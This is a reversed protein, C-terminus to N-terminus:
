VVKAFQLFRSSSMPFRSGAESIYVSDAGTNDKILTNAGIFCREGISLGHAVCANVGFFSSQGVSVNGALSVGSNIWSYDGIACDHGLSSNSSIFCGRGLDTGPHLAVHDLVITNEGVSLTDHRRVTPDIYSAFSYGRASLNESVERRLANMRHFGVVVVVNVESPAFHQELATFPAVPLGLFRGGEPLFEDSVTFGVVPHLASVYSHFVRAMAGCGFVVLPRAAGLAEGGRLGTTVSPGDHRAATM